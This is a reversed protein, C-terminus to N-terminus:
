LAGRYSRTAVLCAPLFSIACARPMNSRSATALGHSYVTSRFAPLVVAVRVAHHARRETFACTVMTSRVVFPPALCLVPGSFPCETL